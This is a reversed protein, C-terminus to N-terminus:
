KREELEIWAIPYYNNSHIIINVDLIRECHM